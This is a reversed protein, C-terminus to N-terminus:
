TLCFAKRKSFIGLAGIATAFLPFSAPLPLEGPLLEGTIVLEAAPVFGFSRWQPGLFPQLVASALYHQSSIDWVPSTDNTDSIAAVWYLAIDTLTWNLSSIVVPGTSRIVAFDSQLFTGSPRGGADAMIGIQVNATDNGTTTILATISKITVPTGLWFGVAIAQIKDILYAGSRRDSPGDTTDLLTTACAPSVVSLLSLACIVTFTRWITVIRRASSM